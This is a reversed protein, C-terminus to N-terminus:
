FAFEQKREWIFIVGKQTLSTLPKSIKSFNQICRRYYGVLGLFKKIEVATRPTVRGEIAKIKSPDVHIGEESIMHGLFEM